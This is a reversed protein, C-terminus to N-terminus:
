IRSLEQGLHHMTAILEVSWNHKFCKIWKFLYILFKYWAQGLQTPTKKLINKFIISFSHPAPPLDQLILDITSVYLLISISSQYHAKAGKLYQIHHIGWLFYAVFSLLSHSKFYHQPRKNSM